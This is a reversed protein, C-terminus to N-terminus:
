RDAGRAVPALVADVTEDEGVTVTAEYREARGASSDTRDATLEVRWEGPALREFVGEGRFVLAGARLNWETPDQAVRVAQARHVEEDDLLDPVLLRV